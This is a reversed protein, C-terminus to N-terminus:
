PFQPPAYVIEPKGRVLHARVIIEDLERYIVYSLVGLVVLGFLFGLIIGYRSLKLAEQYDRATYHAKIKLVLFFLYIDVFGSLFGYIGWPFIFMGWIFNVGAIVVSLTSLLSTNEEMDYQIRM